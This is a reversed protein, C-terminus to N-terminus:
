FKPGGRLQRVIWECFNKFTDSEYIQICFWIISLVSAIAPLWGVITGIISGVAIADIARAVPHSTADSM